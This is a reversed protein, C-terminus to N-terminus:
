KTKFTAIAGIKIHDLKSAGNILLGFTSHHLQSKTQNQTTRVAKLQKFTDFLIKLCNKWGIPLIDYKTSSNNQKPVFVNKIKILSIKM